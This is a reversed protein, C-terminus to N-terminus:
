GDGIFESARSYQKKSPRGCSLSLPIYLSIGYSQLNAKTFETKYLQKPLNEKLSNTQCEFGSFKKRTVTCYHTKVWIAHNPLEFVDSDKLITRKRKLAKKMCLKTSAIINGNYLINM